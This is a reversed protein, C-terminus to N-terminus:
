LVSQQTSNSSSVEVKLAVYFKVINPECTQLPIVSTPVPTCINLPQITTMLQIAPFLNAPLEVSQLMSKGNEFILTQIPIM